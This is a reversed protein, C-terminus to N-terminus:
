SHAARAQDWQSTKFTSSPTGQLNGCCWSSQLWMFGHSGPIRLLSPSPPLWLGSLETGQTPNDSQWKSATHGPSLEAQRTIANPLSSRPQNHLTCSWLPNFLVTNASHRVCAKPGPAIAPGPHLCGRGCPVMCGSPKAEEDGQERDRRKQTIAVSQLVKLIFFFFFFSFVQM